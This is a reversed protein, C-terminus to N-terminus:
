KTRSEYCLSRPSSRSQSFQISVQINGFMTLLEQNMKRMNGAKCCSFFERLILALLPQPRGGVRVCWHLYVSGFSAGRAMTNRSVDPNRRTCSM